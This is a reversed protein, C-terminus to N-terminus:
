NGLPGHDARPHKLPGPTRRYVSPSLAPGIALINHGSGGRRCKVPGQRRPITSILVRLNGSPTFTKNKSGSPPTRRYSPCALRQKRLFASHMRPSSIPAGGKAAAGIKDWANKLEPITMWDDRRESAEIAFVIYPQDRYAQGHADVLGSDNPDVQLDQLARTGKPARILLWTGTELKNWGQDIGIELEAQDNNGFLLDLGKRLPDVFPLAKSFSGVGAVDALSTLVDIYPGALDSGKVSFLGLELSLQGIYPVPGLIPKDITIVRELHAPDLEKM